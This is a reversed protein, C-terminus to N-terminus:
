LREIKVLSYTVLVVSDPIARSYSYVHVKLSVDDIYDNNDDSVRYSLSGRFAPFKIFM